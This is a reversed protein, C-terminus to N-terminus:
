SVNHIVYLLSSYSIEDKRAYHNSKWGIYLAKLINSGSTKYKESLMSVYYSDFRMPIIESINFKFKELLRKMSNPTFHYLHRPVDYAAWFEKYYKADYSISNPVAIFVTGDKKLIRKLEGVRENLDSVHELVHWMSIVDKSNDPINEIESEDKVDLKYESVAFNRANQNPEIGLTQWGKNKFLTLLEGSGCGIDLINKGKAYKSILEVKNLHTYKRIKTYVFNVIGKKTGSHSIYEQSEYYKYLEAKRPRPNIFIFGCSKCKVINFTEKTLFYDTCSLDFAFDRKGCILCNKIEEM